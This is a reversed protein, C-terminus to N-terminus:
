VRTTWTFVKFHSVDANLMTVKSWNPIKHVKNVNASHKLGLISQPHPAWILGGKHNKRFHIKLNVRWFFSGEFLGAKNSNVISVVNWWPSHSTLKLLIQYELLVKFIYLYIKLQCYHIERYGITRVSPITYAVSLFM